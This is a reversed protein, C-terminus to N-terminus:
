QGFTYRLNANILENIRKRMHGTLPEDPLPEDVYLMWRLRTGSNDGLLEFRIVADPRQTFISSWTLSTPPNSETVTPRQEDPLLELWPRRSVHDPDMLADFVIRPPPPQM